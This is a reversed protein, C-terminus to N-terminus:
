VVHETSTAFVKADTGVQWFALNPFDPSQASALSYGRANVGAAMVLVGLGHEHYLEVRGPSWLFPLGACDDGSEAAAVISTSRPTGLSYDLGVGGNSIVFCSHRIAVLVCVYSTSM